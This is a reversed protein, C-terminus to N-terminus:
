SSHELISAVSANESYEDASLRPSLRHASGIRMTMMIVVMIMMVIVTVVPHRVVMVPM